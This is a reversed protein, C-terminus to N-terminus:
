KTKRIKGNVYGVTMKAGPQVKKTISRGKQQDVWQEIVKQHEILQEKYNIAGEAIIKLLNATLVRFEILQPGSLPEGIKDGLYKEVKSQQTLLESDSYDYLNKGIHMLRALMTRFETIEQETM